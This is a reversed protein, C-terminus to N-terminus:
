QPKIQAGKEISENLLDSIDQLTKKEILLKQFEFIRAKRQDTAKSSDGLLKELASFDGRRILDDIVQKEDSNISTFDDIAIKNQTQKETVESSLFRISASLPFFFDTVSSVKLEANLKGVFTNITETDLIAMADRVIEESIAEDGNQKEEQFKRKLESYTELSYPEETCLSANEIKECYILKRPDSSNSSTIPLTVVVTYTGTKNYDATIGPSISTLRPTSVPITPSLGGNLGYAIAFATTIKVETDTLELLADTQNVGEDPPNTTSKFAEFIADQLFDGIELPSKKNSAIFNKCSNPPIKNSRRTRLEKVKKDWAENKDPLEALSRNHKIASRIYTIVKEAYEARQYPLSQDNIPDLTPVKGTVPPQNRINAKVDFSRQITDTRTNQVSGGLDPGLVGGTLGSIPIVASITAGNQNVYKTQGSFVVSGTKYRLTQRLKVKEEAVEYVTRNDRPKLTERGKGQFGKYGYGEPYKYRLYDDKMNNIDMFARSMQCRLATIVISVPIADPITVKNDFGPVSPSAAIACGSLLGAVSVSVLSRSFNPM